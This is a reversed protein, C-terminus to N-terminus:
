RIFLGHSPRADFYRFGQVSGDNKGSAEDLDLGVWIGPAFETEGVYRVTGESGRARIRVG